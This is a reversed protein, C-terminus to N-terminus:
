DDKVEKMEVLKTLANKNGTFPMNNVVEKAVNYHINLSDKDSDSALWLKTKLAKKCAECDPAEPCEFLDAISVYFSGDHTDIQDRTIQPLKRINIIRKNM